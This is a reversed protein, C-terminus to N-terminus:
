IVLKKNFFTINTKMKSNDDNNFSQSEKIPSTYDYKEKIKLLKSSKVGSLKRKTKPLSSKHDLEFVFKDNKLNYNNKNFSGTKCPGIINFKFSNAKKNCVKEEVEVLDADSSGENISFETRKKIVNKLIIKISTGENLKSSIEMDYDLKKSYEM